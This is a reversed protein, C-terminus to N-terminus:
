PSWGGGLRRFADPRDTSPRDVARLMATWITLWDDSEALGADALAGNGALLRDLMQQVM